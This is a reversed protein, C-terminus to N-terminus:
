NERSRATRNALCAFERNGVIEKKSVHMTHHRSLILAHSNKVDVVQPFLSRFSRGIKAVKIAKWM